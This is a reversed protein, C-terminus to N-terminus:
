NTRLALSSAKLVQRRRITDVCLALADGDSFSHASRVRMGM